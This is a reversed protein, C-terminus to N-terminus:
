YYQYEILMEDIELSLASVIFPRSFLPKLFRLTISSIILSLLLRFFVCCSRSWDRNSDLVIEFSIASIKLDPLFFISTSSRLFLDAFKFVLDLSKDSLSSLVLDLIKFRIVVIGLKGSM